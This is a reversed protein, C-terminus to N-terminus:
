SCAKSPLLIPDSIQGNLYGAPYGTLYLVTLELIPHADIIKEAAQNSSKLDVIILGCLTKYILKLLLFLLNHNFVRCFYISTIILKIM